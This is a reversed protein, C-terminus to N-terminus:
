KTRFAPSNELKSSFKSSEGCKRKQLRAMGDKLISLCANFPYCELGEYGECHSIASFLLWVALLELPQHLLSRVEGHQSNTSSFSISIEYHRCRYVTLNHNQSQDQCQSLYSTPLVAHKVISTESGGLFRGQSAYFCADEHHNQVPLQLGTNRFHIILPITKNQRLVTILSVIIFNISKVKNKRILNGRKHFIFQRM